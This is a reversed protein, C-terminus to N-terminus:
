INGSLNNVNISSISGTSGLLGWGCLDEDSVCMNTQNIIELYHSVLCEHKLEIKGNRGGM